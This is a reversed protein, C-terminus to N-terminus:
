VGFRERVEDLDHKNNINWLICEDETEVELVRGHDKRIIDAATQSPPAFLIESFLTKPFIPPHGRKGQYTPVMIKNSSFNKHFANLLKKIVPAGIQPQDVLALFTGSIAPGLQKVGTQFSSFQGLQYNENIVYLDHRLKLQKAIEEAAFGLVALIKEIGAKQFNDIVTELFSKEGFKVLAKPEGMRTSEGAALIIVSIM